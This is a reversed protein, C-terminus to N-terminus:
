QDSERHRRPQKPQGPHRGDEAGDRRKWGRGRQGRDQKRSLDFFFQGVPEQASSLFAVSVSSKEFYFRFCFLHLLKRQLGRVSVEEAAAGVFSKKQKDLTGKASHRYPNETVDQPQKVLESPDMNKM